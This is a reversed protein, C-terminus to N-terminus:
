NGDLERQATHATVAADQKVKEAEELILQPINPVKRRIFEAIMAEEGSHLLDGLTQAEKDSLREAIRAIVRAEVLDVLRTVIEIKEDASLPVIGLARLISQHIDRTVM